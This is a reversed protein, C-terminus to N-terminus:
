ALDQFGLEVAGHDGARIDIIFTADLDRGVQHGGGVEPSPFFHQDGGDGCTRAQFGVHERPFGAGAVDEDIAPGGVQDFGALAHGDHAEGQRLCGDNRFVEQEVLSVVDDALAALWLIRQSFHRQGWGGHTGVEQV